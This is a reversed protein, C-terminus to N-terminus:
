IFAMMENKGEPTIVFPAKIVHYAKISPIVLPKIGLEKSVVEFFHIDEGKRVTYTFMQKNKKILAEFISTHIMALGLGCADVSFLRNPLEDPKLRVYKEGRKVHLNLGKMNKEFYVGCMVPYAYSLFNTIPNVTPIVDDDIFLVFDVGRRVAEKAIRERATAVSYDRVFNTASEAISSAEAMYRALVAYWYYSSPNGTTPVGIMISYKM